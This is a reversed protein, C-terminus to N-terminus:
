RSMLFPKIFICCVHVWCLVTHVSRFVNCFRFFYSTALLDAVIRRLPIQSVVRSDRCVYVTPVVNGPAISSYVNALYELYKVIKLL